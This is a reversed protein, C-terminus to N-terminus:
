VFFELVFTGMWDTGHVNYGLFIGVDTPTWDM